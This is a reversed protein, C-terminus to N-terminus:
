SAAHAKCWSGDCALERWSQMPIHDMPQLAVIVGAVVDTILVQKAFPNLTALNMVEAGARNLDCSGKSMNHLFRRAHEEDLVAFRYARLPGSLDIMELLYPQGCHRCAAVYDAPGLHQDIILDANLPNPGPHLHACPESM